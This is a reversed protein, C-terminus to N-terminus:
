EKILKRLVILAARVRTKVTGLPIELREAIEEQTYGEFYALDILKRQDEKLSDVITKIGIRDTNMEVNNTRNVEHVVNEGRQIKEDFKNQKSRMYDISTNRVINLMWTYLRGKSSDYMAKNNWIKVFSDQLVDEAIEDDIIVKKIVGLLARSYNDYLISFLTQDSKKLMEVLDDETYKKKATLIM